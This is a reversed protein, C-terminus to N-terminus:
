KLAFQVVPRTLGINNLLAVVALVIATTLLAHLIFKM